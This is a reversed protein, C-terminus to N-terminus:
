RAKMPTIRVTTSATGVLGTVPLNPSVPIIETQNALIKISTGNDVTTVGKTNIFMDADATIRIYKTNPGPTFLVASDTAVTVKVGLDHDFIPDQDVSLATSLSLAATKNGLSAPLLTVLTSLLVRAQELTAQSALDVGNIGQAVHVPALDSGRVEVVLNKATGNGDKIPLTTLSM